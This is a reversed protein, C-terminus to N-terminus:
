ITFNEIIDQICELMELTINEPCTPACVDHSMEYMDIDVGLSILVSRYLEKIAIANQYANKLEGDLLPTVYAGWSRFEKNTPRGEFNFSAWEGSIFENTTGDFIPKVIFKTPTVRVVRSVYKFGARQYELLDGEHIDSMCIGGICEFHDVLSKPFVLNIMDLSIPIDDCKKVDIQKSDKGTANVGDQNLYLKVRQKKSPVIYYNMDGVILVKQNDITGDNHLESVMKGVGSTSTIVYNTVVADANHDGSTISTTLIDGVHLQDINKLTLKEMNNMKMMKMMVM